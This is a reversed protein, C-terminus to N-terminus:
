LGALQPCRNMQGVLVVWHCVLQPDCLKASCPVVLLSILLAPLTWRSDPKGTRNRDRQRTHIFQLIETVLRPLLSGQIHENRNLLPPTFIGKCKFRGTLSSWKEKKLNTSSCQLFLLTCYCKAEVGSRQVMRKITETLADELGSM